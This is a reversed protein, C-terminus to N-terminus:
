EQDQTSDLCDACSQSAHKAFIRHSVCLCLVPLYKPRHTLSWDEHALCAITGAIGKIGLAERPDPERSWNKLGIAKSLFLMGFEPRGQAAVTPLGFGVDQFFPEGGERKPPEGYRFPATQAPPPGSCNQIDEVPDEM